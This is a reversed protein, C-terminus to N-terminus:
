EHRGLEQRARHLDAPIGIDIFYERFEVGLPRLRAADVQLFDREFSFSPHHRPDEFAEREIVYIGGNVLGPKGGTSKEHFAVVRGTPDCNVVGYRSADSVKRLAITVLAGRDRHARVLASLNIRFLTDGNLVLARQLDFDQFSKLIAGGTGLPEKEVSYRISMERYVAGFHARITEWRHNVAMIVTEVGADHLMDLVHELFPRGAVPVLPKPLGGSVSSLRSGLGGALIIASIMPQTPAIASM